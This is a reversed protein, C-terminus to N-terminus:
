IGDVCLYKVELFEELGHHSGERGFGSEKMGGFPAGEYSIVGTNVGVVGFELGEGVRFARGLDRTYFYAALGSSTSNALALAEDETDFRFFPAVPGFTEGRALEMGSTAGLLITPEFFTAGFQHRQGGTLVHAGKSTADDLHREVKAVAAEEILPGIAVEADLGHGVKLQGVAASFREVFADHVGSQVLIRNACVCTQGANRFKSDIAGQVAAGIDADDFVIFPANGGLELALRKVTGSCQSMLLKGVETSGTFTLMRVTEDGTLVGGVAVPDGHVVNFIGAPLGAQAGLEALALGSLPAESAPKLVVACGAALAPAVKRAIMLAPFNWPTIAAVVGVPQRLAFLRRGSRNSPIVEGYGRRAEEAYFRVFAASYAIEGRAEVLPKGEEITLLVGLQEQNEKILDHWRLLVDARETAPRAWWGHRAREAVAVARRVDDPTASAVHGLTEGSGPDRVELTAGDSAPVWQGDIFLDERLLGSARLEALHGAVLPVLSETLATMM